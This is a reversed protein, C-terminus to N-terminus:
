ADKDERPRPLDTAGGHVSGERTESRGGVAKANVERVQRALTCLDYIWGVLFLGSTLAYAIGTRMKRLYFRHAGLPGALVCLVYAVAMEKGAVEHTLQPHRRRLRNCRNVLVMWGLSWCSASLVFGVGLLILFLGNLLVVQLMRDSGASRDSAVLFYFLGGIGLVPLALALLQLLGFLVSLGWL